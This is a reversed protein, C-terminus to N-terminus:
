FDKCIAKNGTTTIKEGQLQVQLEIKKREERIM